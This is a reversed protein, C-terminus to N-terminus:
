TCKRGPSGVLGALVTVDNNEKLGVVVDAESAATVVDAGDWGVKLKAVPECPPLLLLAPPVLETKPPAVVVKPAPKKEAPAPDVDAEPPIKPLMFGPDFVDPNLKAM